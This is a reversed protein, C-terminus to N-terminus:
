TSTGSRTTNGFRKTVSVLSRDRRQWHRQRVSSRRHWSQRATSAGRAPTSHAVISVLALAIVVFSVVTTVAGLAYLAPSTVNTTM